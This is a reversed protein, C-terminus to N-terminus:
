HLTLEYNRSGGKCKPTLMLQALITACCMEYLWFLADEISSHAYLNTVLWLTMCPHIILGLYLFISKHLISEPKRIVKPYM